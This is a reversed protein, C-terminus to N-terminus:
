FNFPWNNKLKKRFGEGVSADCGCCVIEVKLISRPDVDSNFKSNINSYLVLEINCFKRVHAVKKM